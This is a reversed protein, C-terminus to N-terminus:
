SGQRSSPSRGGIDRDYKARHRASGCRRMGSGLVASVEQHQAHQEGDKPHRERDVGPIAGIPGELIGQHDSEDDEDREAVLSEDQRANRVRRDKQEEAQVLDSRV